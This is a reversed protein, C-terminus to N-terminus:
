VVGVLQTGSTTYIYGSFQLTPITYSNQVVPICACALGYVGLSYEFVGLNCGHVSRFQLSHLIRQSYIRKATDKIELM